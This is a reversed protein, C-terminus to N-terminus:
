LYKAALLISQSIKCVHGSVYVDALEGNNIETEVFLQSPRGLNEGQRLKIAAGPEEFGNKVLYAGSPGALSGTAIDEVMGLNDWTRISLTPIELTGIFMAGWARIKEELDPIRIKAKLGNKQLPVILYPLGTSVITPHCGPYLDDKDLSISDLLWTTEAEDLTKGFEARGQNMRAKFCGGAKETTVYVTKKNLIFEWDAKESGAQHLGHLTAAAGLIPHGAFDLEEECTFIYARVKNSGIRQLFISEFQRMEQTLKLMAAKNFTGSDIFVTLGNGSFPKDSFVDVHYYSLENM